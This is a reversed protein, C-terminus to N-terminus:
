GCVKRRLVRGHAAVGTRSLAFTEDNEFQPDAVAPDPALLALETTEVGGAGFVGTAETFSWFRRVPSGFLVWAYFRGAHPLNTEGWTRPVRWRLEVVYRAIEWSRTAQDANSM